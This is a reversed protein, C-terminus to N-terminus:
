IEKIIINVSMAEYASETSGVYGGFLWKGDGWKGDGWKRSNWNRPRTGQVLEGNVLRYPRIHLGDPKMEASFSVFEPYNGAPSVFVPYKKLENYEINVEPAPIITETGEITKIFIEMSQMKDANSIKKMIVKLAELVDSWKANDPEGSYQLKGYADLVAAQFFGFIQNFFLSKYETGEISDGTPADIAKGGPYKSDYDDRYQTYDEGIFFM